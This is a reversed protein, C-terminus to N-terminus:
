SIREGSRFREGCNTRVIAGEDEGGYLAAVIRGEPISFAEWEAPCGDIVCPM